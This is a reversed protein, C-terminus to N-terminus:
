TNCNTYTLTQLTEWDIKKTKFLELLICDINRAFPANEPKLFDYVMVQFGKKIDDKKIEDKPTKWSAEYYLDNLYRDDYSTYYSEKQDIRFGIKDNENINEKFDTLVTLTDDLNLEYISKSRRSNHNFFNLNTFPKKNEKINKLDEQVLKEYKEYEKQLLEPTM